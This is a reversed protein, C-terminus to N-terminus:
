RSRRRASRSPSPCASVSDKQNAWTTGYSPSGDRSGIWRLGEPPRNALADLASNGAPELPPIFERILHLAERM